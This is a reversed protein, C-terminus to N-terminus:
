EFMGMERNRFVELNMAAIRLSSSSAAFAFSSSRLRSMVTQPSKRSLGDLVSLTDTAAEALVVWPPVHVQSPSTEVTLECTV